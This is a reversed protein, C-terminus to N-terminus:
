DWLGPWSSFSFSLTPMIQTNCDCDMYHSLFSDRCCCRSILYTLEGEDVLASLIYVDLMDRFGETLSGACMCAGVFIGFGLSLEVKQTTAAFLLIVILPVFSVGAVFSQYDKVTGSESEDIKITVGIVHTGSTGVSAAGCSIASPLSRSENLDITGAGHLKGDVTMEYILENTSSEVYIEDAWSLGAIVEFEVNNHIAVIDPYSTELDILSISNVKVEYSKTATATSDQLHRLPHQAYAPYLISSIFGIGFPRNLVKM